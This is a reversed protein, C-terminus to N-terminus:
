GNILITKTNFGEHSKQAYKITATMSHNYWEFNLLELSEGDQNKVYNNDLLVILAEDTFPIDEDYIRKFNEKVQNIVHYKYYIVDAGIIDLYNIPQKGSVTYMLKSVTFYQNSIQLVGIRGNIKSVLNGTGGFFNVVDDAIKAFPLAAEEVATLSPKRIGFAWPINRDALGKIKALDANQVNVPETSLEIQSNDIKDLTNSDSPDIQYHLWYRKWAENTNYAWENTRTDQNTLTSLIQQNSNDEWYNRREFFVTQGIIRIKGNYLSKLGDILNGLNPTTDRATPWGKTFSGNNTSFLNTFISDQGEKLPIPLITLQPIEDLLSSEFGYGLKQCGKVLLEKVKCANLERIPPFLLEILQKTLDILAIILLAIYAVQAVIKLVLSIIDGLDMAPIPSPSNPVSAQVTPATIITVLQKIGEILAKTLTFGSILLLMLMEAQNDKVILYPIKTLTFPNTINTAEFSLVDADKKFSNTAFRKKISVEMSDDGEESIRPSDELDIFYELTSSLIKVTYPVGEFVGFDEIHKNVLRKGRNDLLITETTLELEQADGIWNIRIGIDEANTPNFSHTGIFHQLENAM